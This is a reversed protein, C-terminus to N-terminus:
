DEKLYFVKLNGNLYIGDAGFACLMQGNKQNHALFPTAAQKNENVM